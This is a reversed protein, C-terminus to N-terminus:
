ILRCPVKECHFQSMTGPLGPAAPPGALLFYISRVFQYNISVIMNRKFLQFPYAASFYNIEDASTEQMGNSEPHASSSFDDRRNFFSYAISIEPRRLQMLGAPNWSAATADDAVAVFAEGMGTCRGVGIKLFTMGAMGVKTFVAESPVVLLTLLVLVAVLVRAEARRAPPIVMQIANPKKM